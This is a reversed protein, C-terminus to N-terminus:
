SDHQLARIDKVHIRQVGLRGKKGRKGGYCDEIDVFDGQIEVIKSTDGPSFDGIRISIEVWDGIKM